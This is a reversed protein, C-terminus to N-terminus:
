LLAELDAILARIEDEGGIFWEDCQHPLFAGSELERHHFGDCEPCRFEGSPYCNDSVKPTFRNVMGSEYKDSM